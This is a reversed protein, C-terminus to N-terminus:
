IAVLNYQLSYFVHIHDNLQRQFEEYVKRESYPNSFVVNDPAPHMIAM